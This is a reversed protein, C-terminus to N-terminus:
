RMSDKMVTGKIVCEKQADAVGLSLGIFALALLTRHLLMANKRRKNSKNM